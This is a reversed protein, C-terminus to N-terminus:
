LHKSTIDNWLGQNPCTVGSIYIFTVHITNVCSANWIVTFVNSITSSVNWFYNLHELYLQFVPTESSVIWSCSIIASFQPWGIPSSQFTDLTFVM